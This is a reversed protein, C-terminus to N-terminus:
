LASRTNNRYYQIRAHQLYVGLGNMTDTGTKNRDLRWFVMDGPNPSNGIVLADSTATLHETEHGLATDTVTVMNGGPRPTSRNAMAWPSRPCTSRSRRAQPGQRAARPGGSGRRSPEGTGTRPCPSLWSARENNSATANFQAYDFDIKSSANSEHTGISVPDTTPPILAGAPIDFWDYGEVTGNLTSAQVTTAYVSTFNGNTANVTSGGQYVEWSVLHRWRKTGANTDPAIVAPSSETAGSSADLTYFYVYDDTLVTAKDGDALLGGNISDLCGSAGGTLCTAGYHNSALAQFAGLCVVLAACLLTRM